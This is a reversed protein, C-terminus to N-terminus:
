RRTKRPWDIGKIGRFTLNADPYGDRAQRIEKAKLYRVQGDAFLYNRRGEWCWWGIDDDAPYHNSLWEGVLIKGSPNAVNSARQAVPEPPESYTDATSDMADIQEPSHYFAMSYAYSTSDFRRKSEEDVPCWLVSPNEEDIEAELYPAIFPRWGRGMWLWFFANPDDSVIKSVPDKACPYTDKNGALYLHMALDIQKLNGSCKIRMATSKAKALAPLLIALLLAVIAIVVLLEVLSFGRRVSRVSQNGYRSTNNEIDLGYLKSFRLVKQL